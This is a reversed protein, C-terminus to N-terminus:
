AQWHLGRKVEVKVLMNPFVVHMGDIMSKEVLPIVEPVLTDPVALVMEDHVTAGLYRGLGNKHAELLAYKMGMAAPGQVSTNLIRTPTVLRGVLVRKAGNPFTITVVRRGRMAFAQQRVRRLGQFTDFFKTFIDYAEDKTMNIGMSLASTYLREASGGFLLTFTAAKSARRQADSIQDPPLSFISSAVGRHVDGAKLIEIMREDQAEEAAIRVEIQSYDASIITIGEIGGIIGRGDKPIQQFNPDSSAFRLTDTGAQWFRPHVWGDVIFRDRWAQSYMKIRQAPASLAHLNRALEAAYGVGHDAIDALYSAQMNEFLVGKNACAKIKQQQSNLNIPGLENVLWARSFEMLNRQKELWTDLANEDLPMGNLTMRSVVKLLEMEMELVRTQGQTEAKEVQEDMLDIIHLVDGAAYEIQKESLEPATWHGHEIDKDLTLGLRRRVSNKLNKSVGHRGTTSIVCEGILTDYWRSKDWEVGHTDLMLIDFASVNHGIFRHDGESFLRKVRDPIVGDSIRILVPVQSDRGCFQMLAINDRWPSLGTTETDFAIDSEKELIECGENVDMVIQKPTTM